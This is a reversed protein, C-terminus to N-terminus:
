QKGGLTQLYVKIMYRVAESFNPFEKRIILANIGNIMDEPMHITLLKMSDPLGKNSGTRLKKQFRPGKNSQIRM